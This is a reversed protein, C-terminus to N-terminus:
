AILCIRQYLDISLSLSFSSFSLHHGACVSLVLIYIGGSDLCCLVASPIRMGLHRLLLHSVAPAASRALRMFRIGMTYSGPSNYWVLWTAWTKGGFVHVAAM